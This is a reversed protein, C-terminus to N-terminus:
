SGPEKWLSCAECVERYQKFAGAIWAGIWGACFFIAAVGFLVIINLETTM